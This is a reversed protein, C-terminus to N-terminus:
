SKLLDDKKIGTIKELQNLFYFLLVLTIVFSPGAIFMLAKSHMEAIQENLIQGKKAEDLIADLPTFIRIALFYNCVGSFFFSFSFFHNSNHILKKLKNQTGQEATIKEIEDTKMIEPNMLLTEIFPKSFYPSLLVFIGILFPFVAEKTAFWMGGLKFLGLGGSILVNILGLVSIMSKKHHYFYEFLGFCLPFAIAIILTPLYGWRETMKNLLFIPIAINCLLNLLANM